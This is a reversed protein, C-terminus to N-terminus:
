IFRQYEVSLWKSRSRGPLPYTHYPSHICMYSSLVVGQTNHGSSSQSWRLCWAGLVHLHSVRGNGLYLSLLSTSAKARVSSAQSSLCKRTDSSLVNVGRASSIDCPSATAEACCRQWATASPCLIAWQKLEPVNLLLLEPDKCLFFFFYDGLVAWQETFAFAFTKSTTQSQSERFM